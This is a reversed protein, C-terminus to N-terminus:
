KSSNQKLRKAREEETEQPTNLWNKILTLGGGIWNITDQRAVVLPKVEEAPMSAWDRGMVFADAGTMEIPTDEDAYYPLLVKKLIPLVREDGFAKRIVDKEEETIREPVKYNLPSPTPQQQEM